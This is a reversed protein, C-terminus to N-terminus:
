QASLVARLSFCVLPLPVASSSLMQYPLVQVHGAIARPNRIYTDLEKMSGMRHGASKMLDGVVRCLVCVCRENRRFCGAALWGHDTGRSAM